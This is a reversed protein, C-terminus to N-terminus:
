GHFTWGHWKGASWQTIQSCTAIVLSSVIGAQVEEFPRARTAIVYPRYHAIFKQFTTGPVWSPIGRLFPFFEIWFAGPVVAEGQSFVALDVIKIYEDDMSTIEKGYVVSFIISTVARTGETDTFYAITVGFSVSSYADSYAGALTSTKVSTNKYAPATDLSLQSCCWCSLVPSVDASSCAM